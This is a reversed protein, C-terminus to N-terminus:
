CTKRHQFLIKEGFSKTSSGWVRAVLFVISNRTGVYCIVYEGLLSSLYLHRVFLTRLHQICFLVAFALVTSVPDVFELSVLLTRESELGM